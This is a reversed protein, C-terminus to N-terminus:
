IIQSQFGMMKFNLPSTYFEDLEFLFLKTNKM